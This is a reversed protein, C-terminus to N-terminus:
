KVSLIKIYNENSKSMQLAEILILLICMHPNRTQIKLTIFKNNFGEVENNTRASEDITSQHVNRLILTFLSATRSWKIKTGNLTKSYFGITYLKDFYIFLYDAM